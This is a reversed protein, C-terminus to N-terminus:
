GRPPPGLKLSLDIARVHETLGGISLAAGISGADWGHETMLYVGLFAGLGYRADSVFFSLADLAREARQEQRM